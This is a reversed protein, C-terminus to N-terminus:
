RGSKKLREIEARLRELKAEAAKRAAREAKRAAEVERSSLLREGTRADFIEVWDGQPSVGFRLGDDRLFYM